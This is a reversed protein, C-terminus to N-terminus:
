HQYNLELNKLEQNDPALRRAAALYELAETRNNKERYLVALALPWNYDQPSRSFGRENYKIAENLDGRLYYTDAIKKLLTFDAPNLLYSKQYYTEAAAYEKLAFYSAAIEKYFVQYYLAVNQRHLENNNNLRPDDIKPLTLLATEYTNIAERYKKNDFYAKGEASYIFTWAPSIKKLASFYKESNELDGLAGKIKARALLNKYNNESLEADIRLLERKVIFKAALENIQPYFDSLKMALFQDYYLQNARNPKEARVYDSLIITDFYKYEALIYYLKNFYYDALLNRKELNIGYATILILALAALFYVPRRTKTKLPAIIETIRTKDALEAMKNISDYFFNNKALDHALSQSSLIALFLWFYIEGSVITFSFLLSILYAAAGLGLFLSLSKFGDKKFNNKILSFFQYYLLSFLLLGFIGGSLLIDLILNHARDTTAGVDGYVGWDPQYYKIFIDNGNEQGYGFLPKAIIGQIATKYFIVRVALSGYKLDTLTSIRGPLYQEVGLAGLSILFLFGFIILTKKFISLRIKSWFFLLLAFFVLLLALLAGRSATFFLCAIQLIIILSYFFKGLFKPTNILLYVSLPIVLLLFSALFNPQGLTSSIRSSLPASEAWTIFDINLFQLVGYLSVLFGSLVATIILHKIKKANIEKSASLNIFVLVFWFFYFLYSIFGEQRDYSGFFSQALNVSFFLLVGLGLIFILPRALYKKFYALTEKRSLRGLIFSQPFFIFKLGTLLFLLWVLIKFLVLKDLEFINYTPFFYSFYLPVFFVAALYDIEILLNLIERGHLPSKLFNLKM